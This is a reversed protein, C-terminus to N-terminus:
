RAALWWDTELVETGSREAIDRELFWGAEFGDRTAKAMRGPIFADGIVKVHPVRDSLERALGNVSARLGVIVVAGVDEVVREEQTHVNFLTVRGPAIERVSMDPSLRVGLKYLERMFHQRHGSELGGYGRAVHTWRTVIEVNAGQLALKWAVDSGTEGSDEEFVVVNGSVGPEADLFEDAAYVFELDWGPIPVGTLGTVGQPDFRAGTAVVVSDPPHDVVAEVTAETGLRVDVGQRELRHAWWDAAKLVGDRTPLRAQLNLMGGLRDRREYLVVEHGRLSAVRAAELGAPGGGVIVVRKPDDTPQLRDLGFAAERYASANMVCAGEFHCSSLGICPRIDAERSEEAKGPWEPDAFWGRTGGVLDMTGEAIWREADAADQFRGPCGLVVARSVGERVQAISPVEYGPPLHHPSYVIHMSHTTGIDLDIFDAGWEDLRHAIERAEETTIGGPMMGGATEDCNMRIGVALDPGAEERMAELCEFMLRLRNDLSGGYEDTRKNSYASMFLEISYGHAAHLEVGDYGAARANRTCQAVKRPLVQIQEKTLQQPFGFFQTEYTAGVMYWPVGSPSGNGCHLQAFIKAGHEHCVDVIPRLGDVSGPTFLQFNQRVNEHINLGGQIILGAGGRARERYYEILEPKPIPGGDADRTYLDYDVSRDRTHMPGHPTLYLRNKVEVPGIRVPAYVHPYSAHESTCEIM